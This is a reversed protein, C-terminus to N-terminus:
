LLYKRGSKSMRERSIPLTSGYEKHKKVTWGHLQIDHLSNIPKKGTVVKVTLDEWKFTGIGEEPLPSFGRIRLEKDYFETLEKAPFEIEVDYVVAKSGKAPSDFAINPNIARPFVPLKVSPFPDSKSCGFLLLIIFLINAFKFTSMM